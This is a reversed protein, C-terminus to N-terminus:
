GSRILAQVKTGSRMLNIFSVALAHVWRYGGRVLLIGVAISPQDEGSNILRVAIFRCYLIDASNFIVSGRKSIGRPFIQGYNM